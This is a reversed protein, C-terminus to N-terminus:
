FVVETVRINRLDVAVFKDHIILVASALGLNGLMFGAVYGTDGKEYYDIRTNLLEVTIKM